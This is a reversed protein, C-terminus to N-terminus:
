SRSLLAMCKALRNQEPVAVKSLRPLDVSVIRPLCLVNDMLSVMALGKITLLSMLILYWQIAM